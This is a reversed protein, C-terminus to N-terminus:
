IITFTIIGASVPRRYTRNGTVVAIQNWSKQVAEMQYRPVGQSIGDTERLGCTALPCYDSNSNTEYYNDNHLPNPM